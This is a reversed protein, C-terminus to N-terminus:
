VGKWYSELYDYLRVDKIDLAYNQLKVVKAPSLASMLGGRRVYDALKTLEKREENESDNLFNM